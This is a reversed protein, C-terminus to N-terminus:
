TRGTWTRPSRTGSSTPSIIFQGGASGGYAASNQASLFANEGLLYGLQSSSGGTLISNISNLSATIADMDPNGPM